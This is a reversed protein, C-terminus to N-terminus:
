VKRQMFCQASRDGGAHMGPQKCPRCFLFKPPHCEQDAAEPWHLNTVPVESGFVYIPITGGNGDLMEFSVTANAEQILNTGSVGAFGAISLAVLSALPQGGSSNRLVRYALVSLFLGLVILMTGSLTPISEAPPGYVITGGGMGAFADSTAALLALTAALGVRNRTNGIM